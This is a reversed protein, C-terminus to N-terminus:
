REREAKLAQLVREVCEDVLHRRTEDDLGGSREGPLRDADPDPENTVRMSIGIESVELPM